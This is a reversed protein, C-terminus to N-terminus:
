INDLCEFQDIFFDLEYIEYSEYGTGWVVNITSIEQKEIVRKATKDIKYYTSFTTKGKTRDVKGLADKQSKITAQEGNLTHLLLTAGDLIGGYKKQAKISNFVYELHLFKEGGIDSVYGTCELFEEEKLFSALSEPTYSFFYRKPGAIKKQGSYPDIEEELRCQSAKARKINNLITKQENKYFSEYTRALALEDNSLPQITTTDYGVTASVQVDESEIPANVDDIVSPPTIESGDAKEILKWSNDPYVIYVDGQDNTVRIQANSNFSLISFCFIFGLTIYNM